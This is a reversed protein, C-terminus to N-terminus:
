SCLHSHVLGNTHKHDQYPPDLRLYCLLMCHLYCHNTDVSHHCPFLNHLCIDLQVDNDQLILLVVVRDELSRHGGGLAQLTDVRHLLNNSGLFYSLIHIVDM